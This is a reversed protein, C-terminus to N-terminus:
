CCRRRQCVAAAMIFAGISLWTPEPVVTGEMRLGVPSNLGSQNLIQVQLVNEGTQFLGAGLNGLVHWDRFEEAFQADQSFVQTGNISIALVKNDAAYQAGALYTSSDAAALSFSTQFTWTGPADNLDDVGAHGAVIWRSQSSTADAMWEGPLPSVRVLPAMDIYTPDPSSAIIWKTDAADDPLRTRGIQDFGTDLDQSQAFATGLPLAMLIALATLIRRMLM